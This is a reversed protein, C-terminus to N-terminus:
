SGADEDPLVGAENPPTVGECVCPEFTADPRCLHNGGVGPSCECVVRTGPQCEALRPPQTVCMCPSMTGDSLCMQTGAGGGMPCSCTFRQGVACMGTGAPPPQTVQMMMGDDSSPEEECALLAGGLWVAIVWSRWRVGPADGPRGRAYLV